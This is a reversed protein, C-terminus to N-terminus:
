DFMYIYLYIFYIHGSQVGDKMRYNPVKVNHLWKKTANPHDLYM